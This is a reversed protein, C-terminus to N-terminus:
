TNKKMNINKFGEFGFLQSKHDNNNINCHVYMCAYMCVHMCVYMCVYSLAGSSYGKVDSFIISLLIDTSM